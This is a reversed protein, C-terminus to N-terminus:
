AISARSSWHSSIALSKRLFSLQVIYGPARRLAELWPRCSAWMLVVRRPKASDEAEPLLCLPANDEVEVEAKSDYHDGADKANEAPADVVSIPADSNQQLVADAMSPDWVDSKSIAPAQEDLTVFKNNAWMEQVVNYDYLGFKLSNVELSLDLLSGALNQGNASGCKEAM